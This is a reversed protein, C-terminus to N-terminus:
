LQSSLAPVQSWPGSVQSRVCSLQSRLCSVQSKLTSLQSRLCSLQSRLASLQSSLASFNLDSVQLASVQSNLGSPQSNLGSLQSRLDSVQLASVQSKLCSVQSSLAIGKKPWNEKPWNEKPWNGEKRKQGINATQRQSELIHLVINTRRVGFGVRDATASNPGVSNPGLRTPGQVGLGSGGVTCRDGSGLRCGLGRVGLSLGLGPGVFNRAKEKGRGFRRKEFKWLRENFQPSKEADENKFIDQFFCM